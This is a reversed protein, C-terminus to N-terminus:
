VFVLVLVTDVWWSSKACPLGSLKAVRLLGEYDACEFYVGMAEGSAVPTKSPIM